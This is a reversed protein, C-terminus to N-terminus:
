PVIELMEALIPETGTGEYYVNLPRADCIMCPVSGNSVVRFERVEAEINTNKIVARM